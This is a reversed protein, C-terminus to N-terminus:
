NALNAIRDAVLRLSRARALDTFTVSEIEFGFRKVHRRVASAIASEPPDTFLTAAETARCRKVIEGMSVDALVDVQDWVETVYPKPDTIRYKVIASLVVAIEDRTTVSQPPLRLTTLCTNVEICREALPWKWHYGAELTRHYRGFRLVVGQEYADILAWPSVHGWAGALLEILKEFV